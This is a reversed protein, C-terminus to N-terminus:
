VCLLRLGVQRYLMLVPHQKMLGEVQTPTVGAEPGYVRRMETLLQVCLRRLLKHRRLLSMYGPCAQVSCSILIRVCYLLLYSELIQLIFSALVAHVCDLADEASVHVHVRWLKNSM